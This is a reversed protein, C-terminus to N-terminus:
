VAIPGPPLPMGAPLGLPLVDDGAAGALLGGDGAAEQGTPCGLQAPAPVLLAWPTGGAVPTLAAWSFSPAFLEVVVM